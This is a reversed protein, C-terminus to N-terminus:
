KNKNSKHNKALIILLFFFFMSLKSREIKWCTSRNDNTEELLGRDTLYRRLQADVIEPNLEDDNQSM